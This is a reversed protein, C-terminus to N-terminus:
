RILLLDGKRYVQRGDKCNITVDYFYSGPQLPEGRFTGDWPRTNTLQQYVRQGWRNYVSLQVLRSNIDLQLEFVDNRGDGNPSFATPIFFNDGCCREVFATIKARESECDDGYSQSVYFTQTGEINSNVRPMQSSGIGGSVDSYWLLGQGKAQLPRDEGVCYKVPSLVEPLPPSVVINVFVSDSVPPCGEANVAVRYWGSNIVQPDNIAAQKVASLYDLPGTWQYQFSPDDPIVQPDFQIPKGICTNIQAGAEVTQPSPIVNITIADTAPACGSYALTATVTYTIDALPNVVPNKLNVDNVGTAPSWNYDLDNAGGTQLVISSGYCVTTDPTLINVQPPDIITITASDALEAQSNCSFPAIVSVKLTRMGTAPLLAMVPISVSTANAPITVTAPLASYDVGSIANGGALLQLVQPTPKPQARNFTFSGPACGRAAFPTAAGTMPAHATVTFSNSQLSRAKIFVGSDYLGNQADALTIKLHYTQCPIVANTATLVTTLGRYAITSGGQNNVYYSTFPSGPGMSTCNLTSGGALAGPIGNNITNVTVPIATGPVRAMNVTGGIGPGSIFFAFADNYPGCVSNIYEESAFVYDFQVVEGKPIMDFELMCADKTTAAGSLTQLAPDGPTSNNSSTLGAEVDNINLVLGTSLVIGSDLGLNSSQVAFTGNAGSACTLNANTITIGPGALRQALAAATQNATIYVQAQVPCACRVVAFLVAYRLLPLLKM